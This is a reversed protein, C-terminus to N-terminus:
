KKREIEEDWMIKFYVADGQNKFCYDEYGYDYGTKVVFFSTWIGKHSHNGPADIHHQYKEIHRDIINGSEGDKCQDLQEYLLDELGTEEHWREWNFDCGRWNCKGHRDGFTERCWKEMEDLMGGSCYLGPYTIVYPFEEHVKLREPLRKNYGELPWQYSEDFTKLQELYSELDM